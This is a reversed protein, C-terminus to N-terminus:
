SLWDCFASADNWSVNVVPHDDTQDFGPSRWTFKPDQVWKNVAGVWGWGGKGDEEAETQYGSVDVFHRFEGRKVQYIGLYFPQTIRVRHQPKEDNSAHPDNDPSGMLFEGAPILRVKMGISNTWERPPQLSPPQPGPSPPAPRLPQVTPAPALKPQQFLREIGKILRDIHHHFDRGQDLEMANRYALRALSPPLDVEGPMTARGVLIPIVPLNRELAAEIEIRVFDRPDDIRRAAGAEGAWYRGIGALLIDCQDVAAAIHEQFDVGFPISDIDMFLADDGFHARLRDYMRGAVGQSDERRYSLFIKTM